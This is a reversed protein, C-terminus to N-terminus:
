RFGLWMVGDEAPVAWLRALNGMDLTRQMGRVWVRSGEKALPNARILFQMIVSKSIEPLFHRILEWDTVRSSYSPLDPMRVKEKQEFTRLDGLPYRYICARNELKCTKVMLVLDRALM